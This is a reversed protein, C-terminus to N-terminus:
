RRCSFPPRPRWASRRSHHEAVHCGHFGVRDYAEALRLRNEYFEALPAGSADLHDFVGFALTM